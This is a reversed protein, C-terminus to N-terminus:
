SIQYIPLQLYKLCDGIVRSQVTRSFQNGLPQRFFFGTVLVKHGSRYLLTLCVIGPFKKLYVHKIKVQENTGYIEM